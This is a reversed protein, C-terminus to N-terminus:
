LRQTRIRDLHSQILFQLKDKDFNPCYRPYVRDLGYSWKELLGHDYEIMEEIYYNEGYDSDRHIGIGGDYLEGTPLRLAIHWCEEHSKMLIFVIHVKDTFRKNWADFFLKAFVGCPGYNIRPTNEHVGLWQNIENKLDALVIQTLIKLIFNVRREVPFLPVEILTYGCHQYGEKLAMYTQMAERFDQQRERDNTYIEEWPPFLFVTRCYIYQEVAHNVQNNEKHCFAKAYSYLDPIGRDFFVTTREQQMQQYDELSYRLMLELFADRDGTHIANGAILQQEKIIKRGVEPVTLFGKQALATLVSTKGSGPGGTLIFFNPKITVNSM